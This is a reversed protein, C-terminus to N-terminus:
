LVVRAAVRRHDRAAGKADAQQPVGLSLKRRKKRGLTGLLRALRRKLVTLRQADRQDWVGQRMDFAQGVLNEDAAVVRDHHAQDFLGTGVRALRQEVEGLLVPREAGESFMGAFVVM